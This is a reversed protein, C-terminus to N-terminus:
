CDTNLRIISHPRVPEFHAGARLAKLNYYANERRLRLSNAVLADLVADGDASAALDILDLDNALEDVAVRLLSLRCRLVM